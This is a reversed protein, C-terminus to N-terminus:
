DTEQGEVYVNVKVVHGLVRISFGSNEPHSIDIVWKHRERFVFENQFYDFISVLDVDEKIFELSEM